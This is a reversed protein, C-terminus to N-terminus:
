PMKEYKYGGSKILVAFAKGISPSGMLKDYVDQPVGQYQYVKGQHFEVELLGGDYGISRIQSSEVSQREM